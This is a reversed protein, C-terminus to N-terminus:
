TRAKTGRPEPSIRMKMSTWCGPARPGTGAHHRGLELALVGTPADTEDIGVVAHVAQQTLQPRAAVVGLHHQHPGAGLVQM